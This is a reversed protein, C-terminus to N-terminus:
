KLAQGQRQGTTDALTHRHHEPWWGGAAEGHLCALTCSIGAGQCTTRHPMTRHTCPPHALHVSPVHSHRHVGLDVHHRLFRSHASEHHLGGCVVAQPLGADAVVCPSGHSHPVRRPSCLAVYCPRMCVHLQSCCCSIYGPWNGLNNRHLHPPHPRPTPPKDVTPKMPVSVHPQVNRATVVVSLTLHPPPLLTVVSGGLVSELHPTAAHCM